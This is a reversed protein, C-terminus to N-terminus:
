RMGSPLRIGRGEIEVLASFRTESSDDTSRGADLNSVYALAVAYGPLVSKIVTLTGPEYRFWCNGAVASEGDYGGNAGDALAFVNSYVTGVRGGSYSFGNIRGTSYANSIAGINGGVLAPRQPLSAATL